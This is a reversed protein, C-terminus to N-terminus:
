TWDERVSVGRESALRKAIRRIAPLPTGEYNVGVGHANRIPEECELRYVWKFPLRVGRVGVETRKILIDSM